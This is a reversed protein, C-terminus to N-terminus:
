PGVALGTADVIRRWADSTGVPLYSIIKGLAAGGGLLTALHIRKLAVADFAVVAALLASYPIAALAGDLGATVALRGLAPFLISISAITMLRKHAAPSNRKAVAACVLGAFVLADSVSLYFFTRADAGAIGVGRAMADAGAMLGTAAVLIALASGATGLARHAGYRGGAILAPQAAAILYWFTLVAGHALFLASLSTLGADRFYYSPAFGAFVFALNVAAIATFFGRDFRDNPTM